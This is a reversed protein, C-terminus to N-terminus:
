CAGAESPESVKHNPIGAFLDCAEVQLVMPLEMFTVQQAAM